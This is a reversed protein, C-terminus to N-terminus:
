QFESQRPAQEPQPVRRSGAATRSIGYSGTVSTAAHTNSAPTARILSHCFYARSQFPALVIESAKIHRRAMPGDCPAYDSHRVKFFGTAGRPLRSQTGSRGLGRNRANEDADRRLYRSRSSTAKLLEKTGCPAPRAQYGDACTGPPDRVARRRFNSDGVVGAGGSARKGPLRTYAATQPAAPHSMGILFAHGTKSAM